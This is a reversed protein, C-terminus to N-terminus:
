DPSSSSWNWERTRQHETARTVASEPARADRALRELQAKLRDLVQRQPETLDGPKKAEAEVRAGDLMTAEEAGWPM